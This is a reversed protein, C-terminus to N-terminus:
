GLRDFQSIPSLLVTLEIHRFLDVPPYKLRPWVARIRKVERAEEGELPALGLPCQAQDLFRERQCGLVGIKPIIEAVHQLGLRFFGLRGTGVLARDLHPRFEGVGVVVEAHHCALPPVEGTRHLCVLLGDAELRLVGVRVQINSICELFELHQGFSHRSVLARDPKPRSVRFRVAPQAVNEPLLTPHRLRDFGDHAGALQVRAIGRRKDNKGANKEFLPSDFLGDLSIALRHLDIRLVTIRVPKESQSKHPTSSRALRQLRPFVPTICVRFVRNRPM